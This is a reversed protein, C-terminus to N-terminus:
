LSPSPFEIPSGNGLIYLAGPELEHRCVCVSVSECVYAYVCICVYICVSVYVCVVCIVYM